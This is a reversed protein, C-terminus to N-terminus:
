QHKQGLNTGGFHRAFAKHRAASKRCQSSPCLAGPHLIEGVESENFDNSNDWNPENQWFVPVLGSVSAPSKEARRSLSIPSATNMPNKRCPNTRGVHPVVSTPFGQAESGTKPASPVRGPHLIEGVEDNNFDNSNDWNPHEALISVALGLRKNRSKVRLSPSATNMLNKPKTKNPLFAPVHRSSAAAERNYPSASLPSATMM